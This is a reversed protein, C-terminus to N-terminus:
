LVYIEYVILGIYRVGFGHFFCSSAKNPARGSPSTTAIMSRVKSVTQCSRGASWIGWGSSFHRGHLTASSRRTPVEGSASAATLTARVAPPTLLWLAMRSRSRATCGPGTWNDLGFSQGGTISSGNTACALVPNFLHQPKLLPNSLGHEVETQLTKQKSPNLLM